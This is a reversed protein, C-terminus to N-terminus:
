KEDSNEAAAPPANPITQAPEDTRASKILVWGVWAVVASIAMMGLLFSIGQFNRIGSTVIIMMDTAVCIGGGLLMAGGLLVALVKFFTKM